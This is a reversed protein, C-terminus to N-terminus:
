RGGGEGGRSSLFRLWPNGRLFDPLDEDAPGEEAPAPAALPVARPLLDLAGLVQDLKALILRQAALVEEVLSRVARLEEVVEREDGRHKRMHSALQWKQEFAEGCVPCAYFEYACNLCFFRSGKM